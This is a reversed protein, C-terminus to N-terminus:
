TTRRPLAAAKVPNRSAAAPIQIRSKQPHTHDESTTPSGSGADLGVPQVRQSQHPICNSLMQHIVHRWRQELRFGWAEKLNSCVPCCRTLVLTTYHNSYQVCAQSVQTRIGPSGHLGRFHGQALWGQLHLYRLLNGQPDLLSFCPMYTAKIERSLHSPCTPFCPKEFGHIPLIVWLINTKLPTPM